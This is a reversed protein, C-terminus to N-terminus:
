PSTMMTVAWVARYDLAVLYGQTPLSVKLLLGTQMPQVLLTAATETGAPWGVQGELENVCWVKGFGRIPLQYGAPPTMGACDPHVDPQGEAWTDTYALLMGESANMDQGVIVYIEKNDSRWIMLSRFHTHPNPAWFEQLAGPITFAPTTPCGLDYGLAEAHDLIPALVPDPDVCPGPTPTTTPTPTKTPTPTDTPTETPTPTETAPEPVVIQVYIQSGFRVGEPSQLQWTSRYTGPTAPAILDVSVDTNSGPAVAPVDVAAPGGLPEGSVFVLQTGAEWTCTGSNGVRWVKNFAAGPAFETDDPVTVDAVYRANLTCGGPGSVDPAPTPSPTVPHSPSKTIPPSPSQTIPHSPSQTVPTPPTSGPVNCALAALILSVGALLLLRHKRKANM